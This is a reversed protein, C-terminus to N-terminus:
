SHKFANKPASPGSGQTEFEDVTNGDADFKWGLVTWGRVTRSASVGDVVSTMQNDLAGEFYWFEAAALEEPTEIVKKNTTYYLFDPAPHDEFVALKDGKLLARYPALADQAAGSVYAIREEAIKVVNKYRLYAAGVTTEESGYAVVIPHDDSVAPIADYKEQLGPMEAIVAEAQLVDGYEYPPEANEFDTAWTQLLREVRDQYAQILEMTDDDYAAAAVPEAIVQTAYVVDNGLWLAATEADGYFPEGGDKGYDGDLTGQVTADVIMAAGMWRDTEVPGDLVITGDKVTFPVVRVVKKERVIKVEYAGDTQDLYHWDEGGWNQDRLNNWGRVKDFEAVVESGVVNGDNGTFGYKTEVYSAPAFRKGDLFCHAELQYSDVSGKHFTTVKLKPADDGEVSDLTVLGVTLLWDNDLAYAKSGELPVATFSGDHLLDDVGDLESVLRVTFAVRGAEDIDGGDEWRVLDVTTFEGADLEPADVSHEFWPTGDPKTTTWVLECGGPTPGFLTMSLKPSWGEPRYGKGSASARLAHKIVFAM